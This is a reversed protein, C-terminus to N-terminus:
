EVSHLTVLNIQQFKIKVKRLFFFSCKNLKTSILTRALLSIILERLYLTVIAVIM